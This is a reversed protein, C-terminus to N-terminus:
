GFISMGPSKSTGTGTSGKGVGGQGGSSLTPMKGPQSNGKAPAGAGADLGPISKMMTKVRSALEKFAEEHSSFKVGQSKMQDVTARVLSDYPKLDANADYFKGYLEKVQQEQYHSQVPQLQSQLEEKLQSVLYSAMTVAQKSIGDRMMAVAQMADQGGALIAKVVNEDPNWVNFAKDFEEQTYQRQPQAVPQNLRQGIASKNIAEAIQEPTLSPAPAPTVQGQQPQIPAATTPDGESGGTDPATTPEDFITSQSVGGEVPTETEM